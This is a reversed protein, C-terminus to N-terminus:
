DQWILLNNVEKVRGSKKFIDMISNYQEMSCGYQMLGAYLTGSPTEKNERLIDGIAQFLRIVATQQQTM